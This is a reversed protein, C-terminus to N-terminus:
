VAERPRAHSPNTADRPSRWAPSSPMPSSTAQCPQHGQPGSVSSLGRGPPCLPPTEGHQTHGQGLPQPEPVEAAAGSPPRIILLPGWLGWLGPSVASPVRGRQGQLIGPSQWPGGQHGTRSPMVGWAAGLSLQRRSKTTAWEAMPCDKQAPSRHGSLHPLPTVLIPSAVAPCQWRPNEESQAGM